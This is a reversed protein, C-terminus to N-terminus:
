KSPGKDIQYQVTLAIANVAYHYPQVGLALLTPVTDPGVGDLAWESTGYREYAYRLHVHLANSVQYTASVSVSDLVYRDEPFSEPLASVLTNENARSLSRRYDASLEWRPAPTWTGGAGLDWFNQADQEIWNPAGNGINGDQVAALRQYSGDLYLSLTAAPTFNLTSALKRDRSERLGLSSLRYADDSWTGEISWTLTTLPSWAGQVSYFNTDRPAYDYARLLPNEEPPLAGANYTSTSRSANGSKLTFNLSSLPDLRLQGWSREDQLWSIVQGPSYHVNEFKGGVGVRAWNVLRYDATGELRTRDEGYRPTVAIGNLFTDTLVQPVALVPTHDDRGDYTASGRVYLRKLPRSSLGLAYHTLRVEGDLADAPLAPSGALNAASLTSAPLFPTDQRLWGYSLQYTLTTADFLPLRAAGGLAVQQLNNSPPLALRGVTAGAAAPLFPNDFGLADIGEKFWSGTYSLRASVAPTAWAAGVEFSDTDYNVPQALQVAGTLFAGSGIETGVKEQHEFRGDLTWRPGLFYQGYLDVTRRDFGLDAPALSGPLQAMAATNGAPTFGGPLTLQGPAPSLYPSVSTDYLRTPQGDYSVGVRYRGEQGLEADGERSPLGLNDLDYDGYFGDKSRWQGSASVDAYPGNHDIGTYRGYAADAGSAYLVGAEVNASYGQLFPCQECKWASTDPAPAAPPDAAMARESALATALAAAIGHYPHAKPTM